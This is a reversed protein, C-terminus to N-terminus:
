LTLFQRTAFDRLGMFSDSEFWVPEKERRLKRLDM